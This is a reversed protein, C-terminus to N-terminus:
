GVARRTIVQGLLEAAKTLRAESLRAYGLVLAPVAQRARERSWMPRAGAVAVGLRAAATVVNDEDSGKPLEVYLHIGASVGRVASDPVHTRLADVLADRRARYQRRMTRLHRDYGGSRILHVM